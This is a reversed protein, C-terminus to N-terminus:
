GRSVKFGVIGLKIVAKEALCHVFRCGVPVHPTEQRLAEVKSYVIEELEPYAAPCLHKSRYVGSCFADKYKEM